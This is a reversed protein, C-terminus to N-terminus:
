QKRGMEPLMRRLVNDKYHFHHMLAAIIHLSVLVIIAYAITEHVEKLAELLAKDPSVLNPLTFLGFVSVPFGAASSMAWGSLPMAFMLGYLIWHLGRAAMKQLRNLTDPLAPSTNILKWVLRLFVLGLVCIGFAKHMGYMKFKDPGNELDTMIFGVTLLVAILAFILWHFWKAASGYTADTNRLAM